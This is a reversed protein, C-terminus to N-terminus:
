RKWQLKVDDSIYNLSIDYYLMSWSIKQSKSCITNHQSRMIYIAIQFVNTNTQLRLDRSLREIKYMCIERNFRIENCIPQTVERKRLRFKNVDNAHDSAGHRTPVTVERSAVALRAAAIVQPFHCGHRQSLQPSAYVSRYTIAQSTCPLPDVICVVYVCLYFFHYTDSFLLISSSSKSLM